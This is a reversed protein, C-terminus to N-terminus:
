VREAAAIGAEITEEVLALDPALTRFSEKRTLIGSAWEPLEPRIGTAAEVADPFKAPHATSHTVMPTSGLHREAVSVGVATHPDIPVGDDRLVRTITTATEAEDASGSAFCESLNERAKADLTFAGSQSLGAMLRRVSAADRGEAEFLLREFNSSVQIDM